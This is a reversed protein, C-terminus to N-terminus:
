PRAEKAAISLLDPHRYPPKRSPGRPAVPKRGRYRSSVALPALSVNVPNPYHELVEAPQLTLVWESSAESWFIVLLAPLEM